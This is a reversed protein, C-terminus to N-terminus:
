PQIPIDRRWRVNDPVPISVTLLGNEFRAAARHVDADDPIPITRCFSGYGRESRRIGQIRDPPKPQRQGSIVLGEETVAVTIDEKKLGPLEVSVIFYGDEEAVEIPPFWIAPSLGSSPMGATPAVRNMEDFSMRILRYLAALFLDRPM